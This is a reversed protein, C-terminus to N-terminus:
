PCPCLVLSAPSSGGRIGPSCTKAMSWSLFPCLPFDFNTQCLHGTEPKHCASFLSQPYFHAFPAADLHLLYRCAMQRTSVPFICNAQFFTGASHLCLRGLHYLLRLHNLPVFPVFPVLQVFLVFLHRRLVVDM